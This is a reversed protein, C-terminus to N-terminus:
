FPEKWGNVITWDISAGTTGTLAFIGHENPRLRLDLMSLDTAGSGFASLFGGDSIVQAFVTRANTLDYITDLSYDLVSDDDSKQWTGDVLVDEEPVVLVEFTVPSGQGDFAGSLYQLIGPIRHERLTPSLFGQFQGTNRFSVMEDQIYPGGPLTGSTVLTFERANIDVSNGDTVGGSYSGIKVEVNEAESGNDIEVRASVYTTSIHTEENNNPYEFQHFTVLRGKETLVQFTPPAFGLFGTRIQYINGKTPDLVFESNGTGDLKDRNFDEQAVFTEVGDKRIACGFKQEGNVEKYGIWFGNNADMFGAKLHGDNTPPTMIATFWLYMEFSPVYKLSDQDEIDISSGATTGSAITLLNEFGPNGTITFTSSGVVNAIASGERIGLYFNGSIQAKRQSIITDGFVTNSGRFGAGDIPLLEGGEAGGGALLTAIENLLYALRGDGSISDDEFKKPVHAM